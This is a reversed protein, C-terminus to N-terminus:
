KSSINFREIVQYDVGDPTSKSLYLSFSSITLELPPILLTSIDKSTTVNDDIVEETTEAVTCELQPLKSVKRSLTIHPTYAREPIEIGQSRASAMLKSALTDLWKPTKALGAYLVKATQFIALHNVTLSLALPQSHQSKPSPQTAFTQNIANRQENTAQGLFALTLHLNQPKTPKPLPPFIRAQLAALEYKGREDIDLACFYRAM